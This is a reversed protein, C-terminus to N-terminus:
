IPSCGDTPLPNKMETTYASKTRGVRGKIYGQPLGDIIIEDLILDQLNIMDSFRARFFVCVVSFM